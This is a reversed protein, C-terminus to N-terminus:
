GGLDDGPEIGNKRLLVALWIKIKTIDERVDPAEHLHQRLQEELTRVRWSMVAWAAGVGFVLFLTEVALVVMWEEM